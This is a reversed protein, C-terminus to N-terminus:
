VLIPANEQERLSKMLCGKPQQPSSKKKIDPDDEIEEMITRLTTIVPDNDFLLRRSKEEAVDANIWSLNPELLAMEVENLGIDRGTVHLTARKQQFQQKDRTIVMMADTAGQIAVSGNIMNFPNNPDETKRTHHILLIASERERAIASLDTLLPYDQKYESVGRIDDPRIRQLTDIIILSKGHTDIYDTIMKRLDDGYKPANIRFDPPNDIDQSYGQKILRDKIRAFSDELALYLVPVKETKHELFETGASANTAIQMAMLSKGAKPPGALITGGVPLLDEIIFSPKKIDMNILEAASLTSDSLSSADVVNTVPSTTDSRASDDTVPPLNMQKLEMLGKQRFYTEKDEEDFADGPEWGNAKALEILIGIGSSNQGPDKFTRWKKACEGPKYRDTDRSSWEDWVEPGLGAELTGVGIACWQIYDCDVPDIADLASMIMKQDNDRNVPASPSANRKDLDTQPFYQDALDQIVKTREAIPKDNIAIGTITLFRYESYMEIQLAEDRSGQRGTFPMDGRILIHIGTGSPSIEAYSHLMDVIKYAAENIEGTEPDICHDLDIGCVGDGLLYEMGDYEDLAIQADVFGVCTNPANSKANLGSLPNFPVKNRHVAWRKDGWLERLAEPDAEALGAFFLDDRIIDDHNAAKVAAENSYANYM